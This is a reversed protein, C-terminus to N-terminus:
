ILKGFEPRKGLEVIQSRDVTQLVEDCFCFVKLEKRDTEAEVLLGSTIGTDDWRMLVIRGVDRKRVIVKKTKTLM